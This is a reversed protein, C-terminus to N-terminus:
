TCDAIDISGPYARAELCKNLMGIGPFQYQDGDFRIRVRGARESIRSPGTSEAAYYHAVIDRFGFSSGSQDFHFEVKEEWWDQGRRIAEDKEYGSFYSHTIGEFVKTFEGAIPSYVVYGHSTTGQYWSGIPIVFGFRNPGLEWVDLDGLGEGFNMVGNQGVRILDIAHEDLYWGDAARKFVFLSLRVACANCEGESVGGVVIRADGDVLPIFFERELQPTENSSEFKTEQSDFLKYSNTAIHLATQVSWRGEFQPKEIWTPALTDAVEEIKNEVAVLQESTESADKRDLSFGVVSLLFGGMGILAMMGTAFPHRGLFEIASKFSKAM